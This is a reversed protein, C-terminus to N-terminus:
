SRSWSHIGLEGNISLLGCGGASISTGAHGAGFADYPSEDRRLFGSIGGATRITRLDERRGTVMKHIYGQHGVDWIVKDEPTSFAHHLAVTLEAVGLSSAFHGGVSAVTNILEDRLEDAVARLEEASLARLGAPLELSDILRAM